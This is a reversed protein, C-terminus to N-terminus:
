RSPYQGDGAGGFEHLVTEGSANVKFAVGRNYKGGYLTTGYFNGAADRIM